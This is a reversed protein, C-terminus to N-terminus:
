GLPFNGYGFFSVIPGARFGYLITWFNLIIKELFQKLKMRWRRRTMGLIKEGKAYESLIICLKREKTDM